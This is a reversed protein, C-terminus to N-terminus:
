GGKVGGHRPTRAAERQANSNRRWALSRSFSRPLILRPIGLFPEALSRIGAVAQQMERAIVLFDTTDRSLRDVAPIM